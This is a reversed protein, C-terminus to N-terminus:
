NSIERFQFVCLSVEAYVKQVQESDTDSIGLLWGLYSANILAPTVLEPRDLNKLICAKLFREYSTSGISSSQKPLIPYQNEESASSRNALVRDAPQSAM